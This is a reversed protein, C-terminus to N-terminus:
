KKSSKEFLETMQKWAPGKADHGGEIRETAQKAQLSVEFAPDNILEQLALLASQDGLEYLFRAARWRVLKNEDKLSEIIPGMADVNGLDTLADGAARRVGVTPDKLAQCLTELVEDNELLGLFVIALQRILPKTDKAAQYLLGIADKNAGIERLSTLREKWDESGLAEELEELSRKTEEKDTKFAQHVLIDLRKKPYIACIEELVSAGVTEFDGYRVGWTKWQREFLMNKSSPAACRIVDDFLEPLAVRKEELEMRLRILMPIRRFFQISVQIEQWDEDVETTKRTPAPTEALEGEMIGRIERLIDEWKCKPDRQIALFDALHFVSQVGPVELIKSIKQPAGEQKERTYTHNERKPLSEDLQLKMSNPNPTPEISLLKM